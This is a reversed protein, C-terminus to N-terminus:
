EAKPLEPVAALLPWGDQDFLAAEPVGYITAMAQRIKPYPYRRRREVHSVISPSIGLEKAVQTQTLGKMRRILEIRTM